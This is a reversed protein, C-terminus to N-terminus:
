RGNPAGPRRTARRYTRWPSFGLRAYFDLLTTWDIAMHRAGSGRVHDVGVALLALGLGRGRHSAAVGIPGLGGAPDGLAPAWYVSPGIVPGASRYTVAFGVVEGGDRAVVVDGPAAAMVVDAQAAWRGPFERALFRRVAPVEGSRVPGVVGAAALAAAAAPLVFGALDRAVDYEWSGLEYGQAAFFDLAGGVPPGPFFHDWGAGANVQTVGVASLSAEARALLESGLGQRQWAPHVVVAAVSGIGTPGITACSLGILSNGDYARVAAGPALFASGITNQRWLRPRLPFRDGLAENWLAVAAETHEEALGTQWQM